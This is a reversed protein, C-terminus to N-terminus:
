IEQNKKLVGMKEQSKDNKLIKGSKEQGLPLGARLYTTLPDYLLGLFKCPYTHKLFIYSM